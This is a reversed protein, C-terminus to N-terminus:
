AKLGIMVVRRKKQGKEGALRDVPPVFLHHGDLFEFVLGFVFLDTTLATGRRVCGSRQKHGTIGEDCIEHEVSVLVKLVNDFFDLKKSAALRRVQDVM